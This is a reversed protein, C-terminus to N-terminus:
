VSIHQSQPRTVRGASRSCSRIEGAWSSQARASKLSIVKGGAIPAHDSVNFAAAAFYRSEKAIYKAALCPLRVTSSLM